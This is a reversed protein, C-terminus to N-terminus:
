KGFIVDKSFGSSFTLSRFRKGDSEKPPALELLNKEEEPLGNNYRIESGKFSGEYSIMVKPSWLYRDGCYLGLYNPRFCFKEFILDDGSDNRITVPCVIHNPKAKLLDVDREASFPLSYCYEGSTPGGFWSDSLPKSPVSGIFHEGKRSVVHIAVSVPITLYFVGSEKSPVLVPYGPKILLSRDPVTPKFLFERPADSFVTKHWELNDPIVDDPVLDLDLVNDTEGHEVAFGWEKDARALWLRLPGLRALSVKHDGIRRPNWFQRLNRM